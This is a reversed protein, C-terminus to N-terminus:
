APDGHGVKLGRVMWFSAPEQISGQKGYIPCKDALPGPYHHALFNLASGVKYKMNFSLFAELPYQENWFEVQDLLWGNPYDKPTFIDHM